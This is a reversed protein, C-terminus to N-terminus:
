GQSDLYLVFTKARGGAPLVTLRDSSSIFVNRKTEWGLGLTGILEVLTSTPTFPPGFWGAKAATGHVV